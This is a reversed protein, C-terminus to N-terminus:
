NGLQKTILAPFLFSESHRSAVNKNIESYNFLLCFGPNSMATASSTNQHEIGPANSFWNPTSASIISTANIRKKMQQRMLTSPSTPRAPNHLSLTAMDSLSFGSWTPM